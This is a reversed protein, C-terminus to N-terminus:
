NKNQRKDEVIQDLIDENVDYGLANTLVTLDRRGIKDEIFSEFFVDLIMHEIEEDSDEPHSEKFFTKLQKILNMIQKENMNNEEKRLPYPSIM